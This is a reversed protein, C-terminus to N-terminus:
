IAITIIGAAFVFLVIPGLLSKEIRGRQIVFVQLTGFVIIGGCLLIMLGGFSKVAYQFFFSYLILIVTLILWIINFTSVKDEESYYDM